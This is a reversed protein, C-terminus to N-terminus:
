ALGIVKWEDGIPALIVKLSLPSTVPVVRAWGLADATYQAVIDTSEPGESLREAVGLVVPGSVNCITPTTSAFLTSIGQLTAAKDRDCAQVAEVWAKAAAVAKEDTPLQPEVVPDAGVLWGGDFREGTWTQLERAASLGIFPSLGPDHRVVATQTAGESGELSYSTIPSLERMRKEWDAVDKYETRSSPTLLGFAAAADNRQMAGLVGGVAEKLSPAPKYTEDLKVDSKATGGGGGCGAALTTLVIVFAILWRRSFVM